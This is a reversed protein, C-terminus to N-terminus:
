GGSFAIRDRFKHSRSASNFATQSWRADSELHVDMEILPKPELGQAIRAKNEKKIAKNEENMENIYYRSKYHDYMRMFETAIIASLRKNGTILMANEDNDSCSATSFNASGILVKPSESFPDIVITKAHIKHKGFAKADWSRGMYSQLRSPTFFRTNKRQLTLIKKKATTNVLGYELIDDSNTHLADIMSKDVGFPASILVMSEASNILEVSTELIEKKSIPSFFAKEAFRDAAANARDMIKRNTKKSDAKPPNTTLAHFYDEFNQAVKPDRVILATNTQFNFANESFNASGTWVEQPSDNILHIVVKNHSINVTDRKVRNHELGFHHIVEENEKTSKKGEKADHVIRVDVNRDIADKLAGVVEHDFFEYIAVHLADGPKAAAIFGLLSEKLGRSLWQYAPPGVESPLQNKFRTLYAMAATVGRNVFVGLGDSEERSPLIEFKLPAEERTLAEPRGRVPFVEYIYKRAPNLTYDNWRFRQFPAELSRVDESKGNDTEKFRKYGGLWDLRLVENTEPNLDTRKIAFGLLGNRLAPDDFTWGIIASHTGVLAKGRYPGSVASVVPQYTIAM